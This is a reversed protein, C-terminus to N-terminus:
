IGRNVSSTLSFYLESSYIGRYEDIALFIFSYEETIDLWHIYNFINSPYVYSLFISHFRGEGGGRTCARAV